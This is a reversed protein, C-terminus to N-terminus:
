AFNLAPVRAIKPSAAGAFAPLKAPGGPPPSKWNAAEFFLGGWADGPKVNLGGDTSKKNAFFLAFFAAAELSVPLTM